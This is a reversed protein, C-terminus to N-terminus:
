NKVGDLLKMEELAQKYDKRSMLGNQVADRLEAKSQEVASKEQPSQCGGLLAAATFALVLTFLPAPKM